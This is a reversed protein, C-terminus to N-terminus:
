APREDIQVRTVQRRAMETVKVSVDGVDVADGVVPIRGLREMVFGGVTDYGDGEPLEVGTDREIEDIRWSGPVLWTSDSVQEVAVVPDHEDVIDGVLEEVLDELTLIGGTVTKVKFPMAEISNWGTNRPVIIDGQVPSAGAAITITCPKTKTASIINIPTVAPDSSIMIVSGQSSIRSM